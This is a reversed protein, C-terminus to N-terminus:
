GGIVRLALLAVTNNLIHWAMGPYLSGTRARVISLAVGVAVLSLQASLPYYFHMCGWVLASVLAGGWLGLGTAELVRSLYGRFIFEETVAAVIGTLLLLLWVSSKMVEAFPQVAELTATPADGTAFGFAMVAAAKVAYIMVIVAGWSYWAVHPGPGTVARLVEIGALWRIVWFLVSLSVLDGMIKAGISIGVLQSVQLPVGSVQATAVVAASFAVGIGLALGVVALAIAAATWGAKFPREAPAVYPTEDGPISPEVLSM